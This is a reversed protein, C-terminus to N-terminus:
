DHVYKQSGRAKETFRSLLDDLVVEKERDPLRMKQALAAGHDDGAKGLSRANRRFSLLLAMYYGVEVHKAAQSGLGDNQATQVANWLRPLLWPSPQPLSRLTKGLESQAHCALLTRTSLAKRVAPPLMTDIPYAEAPDQADLNAAPLARSANLAAALEGESPLNAASEDIGSALHELVGDMNETNVKMRDMNRATQKQKKNGFAEGLDRRARTYDFGDDVGREVALASVDALAKISRNLTFVPVARLTVQKTHKDYIGLLYEGSYGRTERRLDPPAQASAGWGWNSSLYQIKSTDGCLLLRDNMSAPHNEKVDSGDSSARYLAFDSTSPEFEGFSALVTGLPAEDEQYRLVAQGNSTGSHIRVKKKTKESDGERIRRKSSGDQAGAM